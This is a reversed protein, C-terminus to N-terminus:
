AAERHGLPSTVSRAPLHSARAPTDRESGREALVIEGIVWPLGGMFAPLVAIAAANPWGAGPLSILLAIVFALPVGIMAGRRLVRAFDADDLESPDTHHQEVTPEMDPEGKIQEM